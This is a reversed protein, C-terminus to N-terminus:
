PPDPQPNFGAKFKTKIKMTRRRGEKREDGVPVWPTSM